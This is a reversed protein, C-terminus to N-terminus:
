YSQPQRTGHRNLLPFILLNRFAAASSDGGDSYDLSADTGDVFADGDSLGIAGRWRQLISIDVMRLVKTTTKMM